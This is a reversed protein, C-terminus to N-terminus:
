TKLGWIEDIAALVEKIGAVTWEGMHGIRFTKESLKGYGNGIEFGKQALGQNLDKVSKGLTNKICSVTISEYGKEPFMEFNKKAWTQTLEAM